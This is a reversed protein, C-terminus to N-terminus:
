KEIAMTVCNMNIFNCILQMIIYIPKDNNSHVFLNIKSKSGFLIFTIPIKCIHIWTLLLNLTKSM